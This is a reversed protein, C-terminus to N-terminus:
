EDTTSSIKINNFIRPLYKGTLLYEIIYPSKLVNLIRVSKINM